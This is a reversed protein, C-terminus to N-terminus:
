EKVECRVCRIKGTTASREIEDVLDVRVAMGAGLREGMGRVISATSEPTYAPGPVVRVTVHDRAEQVIQFMAVGPVRYMMTYFNVGPVGGGDARLLIDDQRGDFAAVTVPLGRGCACVRSGTNPTARDGTDYRIFPMLGNMFGTAIVKGDVIETVGYELAEHYAGAECQFHLSVKEMMGYHARVPCCLIREATEQWHPLVQESAVHASRFRPAELGTEGLLRAFLYVSSPYGVLVGAGYDRMWDVYQGVTERNLHYASLYLRRLEPDHYFLPGGEPPVYRRLWITKERYLRAGHAEFARTVHAAEAKYMDETGWFRLPAGTSGSTKFAVVGAIGARTARTRDVLRDLNARVDERTLVPLFALDEPRQIDAPTLKRLEFARRYYPVNEYAHAVLRGLQEAQMARLREEDWWQSRRLWGLIQRYERGYRWSFPLAYYPRAFWPHAKAYRLVSGM